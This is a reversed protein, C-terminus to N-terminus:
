LHADGFGTQVGLEILEDLTDAIIMMLYTRVPLEGRRWLAQYARLEDPRDIGAEVTSTVGETLFARLGREINRELEDQGPEVIANQVLGLATERVVGTPVGHADRDIQGGDPDPTNSDIGALALAASNAVGLHHCARFLLVPHDPSVADLDVRTPHRQDDLRAQDYGRGIIWSGPTRHEAAADILEVIEAITRVPPTSLALDDLSLGLMMPHAHADNLGPTATRGALDIIESRPAAAARAEANSGVAVVVGDRIAVAEATPASRDMTKIRGNLLLLNGTM